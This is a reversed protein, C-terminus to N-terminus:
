LKIGITFKFARGPMPYRRVVEYQKDLLNMIDGRLNVTKGGWRIDRYLTLGMDTYGDIHTNSNEGNTSWREGSATAHWVV